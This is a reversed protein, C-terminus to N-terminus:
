CMRLRGAVCFLAYCVADLVVTSGVPTGLLMSAIMGALACVVAIAASCVSVSCFSRCVRMASLAPFVILASLLLAGVFSMGVVIVFAIMVAIILNYREVPLGCAKAFSEDFTVSFIRNYLLIAAVVTVPAIILMNQTIRAVAAVAYAGFAVHSLGDGIYSLRKMVLTTGLLSSCLAVLVGVVLANIVFPYELYFVM